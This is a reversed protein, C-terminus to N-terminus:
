VGQDQDVAAPHDKRGQLEWQKIYKLFVYVSGLVSVVLGPGGDLFGRKLLYMKFFRFFSHFLASAITTAKGKRQKQLASLDTYVNMKELHHSINRYPYHRIPHKLKGTTGSVTFSEHVLVNSFHGKNKNFLRLTYDPYWGCHRIWRGLYHVLRPIYYGDKDFDLTRIEDALDPPAEEDADLWLIWDHSTKTLAFIRQESFGPWPNLFIKDTYAKAIEVTRDNSLSDVVIIEDSIAAASKLCREINKEENKTLVVASIKVM